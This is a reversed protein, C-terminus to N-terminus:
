IMDSTFMDFSHSYKQSVEATISKINSHQISTVEDIVLQYVIGRRVLDSRWQKHNNDPEIRQFVINAVGQSRFYETYCSMFDEFKESTEEAEKGDIGWVEFIVEYSFMKGFIDVQLSQGDETKVMETFRLRPKFETNKTVSGVEMPEKRYKYTIIPTQLDNDDTNVKPYAACLTAETGFYAQFCNFLIHTFDSFKIISNSDFTIKM